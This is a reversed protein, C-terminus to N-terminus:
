RLFDLVDAYFRAKKNDDLDYLSDVDSEDFVDCLDDYLFEIMSDFDTILDSQNCRSYLFAVQAVVAQWELPDKIYEVLNTYESSTERGGLSQHTHMLEHIMVCRCTDDTSLADFFATKYGIRMQIVKDSGISVYMEGDSKAPIYISVTRGACNNFKFTFDPTGLKKWLPKNKNWSVILTKLDGVLHKLRISM